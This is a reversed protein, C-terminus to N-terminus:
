VTHTSSEQLDAGHCICNDDNDTHNGLPDVVLAETGGVTRTLSGARHTTILPNLVKRRDHTM